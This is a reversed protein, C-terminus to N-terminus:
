KRRAPLPEFFEADCDVCGWSPEHGTIVCGGLIYKDSKMAEETPLGFLYPKIRTSGCFPCKKPMEAVTMRRPQSPDPRADKAAPRVETKPPEVVKTPEGAAAGACLTAALAAFMIHKSM